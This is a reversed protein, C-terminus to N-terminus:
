PSLLTQIDSGEYPNFALIDLNPRFDPNGGSLASQAAAKLVTLSPAAYEEKQALPLVADCLKIVSSFKGDQYLFVGLSYGRCESNLTDDWAETIPFSIAKEVASAAENTKGTVHYFYALYLYTSYSPKSAAFTSFNRSADDFHGHGADWLALTLQPWWHRPLDNIANTCASRVKFRDYRLLFAIKSQHLHIERPKEKLRADYAALSNSIFFSLPAQTSAPLAITQLLKSPQGERDLSLEWINTDASSRSENLALSYGYHYFGGGFEVLARNSQIDGWAHAGLQPLPPPLQAGNLGNTIQLLDVSQCYLALNTAVEGSIQPQQMRSEINRIQRMQLPIFVVMGLPTFFILFALILGVALLGVIWIVLSSREKRM